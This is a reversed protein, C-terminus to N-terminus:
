IKTLTLSVGRAAETTFGMVVSEGNAAGVLQHTIRIDRSSNMGIIATHGFHIKQGATFQSTFPSIYFTSLLTNADDKVKMRITDQATNETGVEVLGAINLLYYGNGFSSSLRIDNDSQLSMNSVDGQTWFNTLTTETDTATFSANGTTYTEIYYSDPVAWTADARLFYNNNSGSSGPVVGRANNTTSFLSLGSGSGSFSGTIGASASLDGQIYVSQTLPNVYSATLAAIAYSATGYLSGTIGLSASLNGVTYLSGTLGYSGSLQKSNIWQSGNNSGSKVLLDGHTANSASVDHLEDLEYGNQIRIFASGNTNQSRAVHGLRVEHYPAPPIVNTYDGSSSLYLMDGASFASTDIGNVVGNLLIYGSTSASINQMVVGITNASGAESEWSATHIYLVDSSGASGSVKVFKGKNITAATNNKVRLLLQQGIKMIVGTIDTDYELDGSNSASGYHVRGTQFTPDNALSTNFDIYNYVGVSATISTVSIDAKLRVQDNTVGSGTISGSTLVTAPVSGTVSIVGDSIGINAGSNFQNRVDTAFNTINSATLGTIQSGSGTFATARVNGSVDLKAGAGSSMGVGMNGSTANVYVDNGIADLFLPASFAQIYVGLPAKNAAGGTSAGIALDRADQSIVFAYQGQLSGTLTENLKRTNESVHLKSYITGPVGIGTKSGGSDSVTRIDSLTGFTGNFAGTFSGTGSGSLNVVQPNPYSGSLDSGAPGKPRTSYIPM